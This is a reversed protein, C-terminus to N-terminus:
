IQTLFIRVVSKAYPLGTELLASSRVLLANKDGQEIGDCAESLRQTMQLQTALYVVETVNDLTWSKTETEDSQEPIPEPQFSSRKDDPKKGARSGPPKGLFCM